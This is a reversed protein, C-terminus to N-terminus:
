SVAIKWRCHKPLSIPVIRLFKEMHFDKLHLKFSIINHNYIIIHLTIIQIINPHLQLIKFHHIKRPHAKKFNSLPPSYRKPTVQYM